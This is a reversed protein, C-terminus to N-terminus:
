DETSRRTLYGVERKFRDDIYRNVREDLEEITLRLLEREPLLFPNAAEEHLKDSQGIAIRGVSVPSPLNLEHGCNPGQDPQQDPCSTSIKKM